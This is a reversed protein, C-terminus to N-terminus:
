GNQEGYICLNFSIIIRESGDSDKRSAHPLASPFLFVDGFKGKFTVSTDFSFPNSSFFETGGNESLYLIGSYDPKDFVGQNHIHPEHTAGDGYFATWYDVLGITLNLNKHMESLAQHLQNEFSVNRVTNSFDTFHNEHWTIKAAGSVEKIKERNRICEELVAKPDPLQLSFCKVPFLDVEVM